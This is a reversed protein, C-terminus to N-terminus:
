WPTPSFECPTCSRCLSKDERKARSFSQIVWGDVRQDGCGTRTNTPAGPCRLGVFTDCHNACIVRGNCSGDGSCDTYGLSADIAEVLEHAAVQTESRVSDGTPWCLPTTRVLAISAQRGHIQARWNHGCESMRLMPAGAFTLFQVDGVAPDPLEVGAEDLRADIWAPLAERAIQEDPAPLTVADRLEITVDGDWWTSLNSGEVLCRLFRDITARDDDGVGDFWIPQVVVRRPAPSQPSRCGGVAGLLSAVLVVATLM